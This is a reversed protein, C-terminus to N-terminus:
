LFLEAIRQAAQGLNPSPEVNCHIAVAAGQQWYNILHSVTGKNDGGHEAYARGGADRNLDWGIGQGESPVFSPDSFSKVNPALQPRYMQATTAPRLLLGANLASAFRCLDEDTSLVGGGAYKYSDDEDRSRELHQHKDDWFYGQGRPVVIRGAVDLETALMRSPAWIHRVLYDEFSSRSATEVVAQLLSFGYTTYSWHAGPDFLLPDDRWFRTSEELTPYHRFAAMWRGSDSDEDNRYHRIGSTHTLLQRVTIPRQKRPFWPAYAQIENDLLVASKEVLQMVAVTTMMKSISAISFVTNGDQRMATELDALGVGGSFARSGAIFVAASVGPAQSHQQLQELLTFLQRRDATSRACSSSIGAM